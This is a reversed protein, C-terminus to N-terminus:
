PRGLNVQLNFVLDYFIAAQQTSLNRTVATFKIASNFSQSSLNERFILINANPNLGSSNTTNTQVLHRNRYIRFDNAAGRSFGYFPTRSFEGSNVGRSTAQFNGQTFTSGFIVHRSTSDGFVAAGIAAGYGVTNTNDEYVWFGVNNVSLYTQANAGSNLYSSGNGKLGTSRSYSSETFGVSTFSPASGGTVDILKVLAASLNSGSYVGVDLMLSLLGTEQLSATFINLADVERADLNGGGSNVQGLYQTVLPHLENGIQRRRRRSM